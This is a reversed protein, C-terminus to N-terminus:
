YRVHILIASVILGVTVMKKTFDNSSKKGLLFSLIAGVFFGSSTLLALNYDVRQHYIHTSAAVLSTFMIMFLSTATGERSSLKFIGFLIPTKVFGGGMGLLGAFFGGFVGSGLIAPLSVYHSGMKIKPPIMTPATLLRPKEKIINLFSIAVLVVSFFIKIVDEPLTGLLSTGIIVGVVTPLELALAVKYRINKAFFNLVSSTFSATFLALSISAVVDVLPFGFFVTLVPTLFVSGGFGM